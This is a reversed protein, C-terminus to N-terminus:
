AQALGTEETDVQSSVQKEFTVTHPKPVQGGIPILQDENGVLSYPSPSHRLKTARKVPPSSTTPEFGALGVMHHGVDDNVRHRPVNKTESGPRGVTGAEILEGCPPLESSCGDSSWD